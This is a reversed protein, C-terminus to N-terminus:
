NSDSVIIELWMMVMVILLKCSAAVQYCLMLKLSWLKQNSGLKVKILRVVIVNSLLHIPM